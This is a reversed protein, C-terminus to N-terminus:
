IARRETVGIRREVRQWVSEVVMQGLFGLGFEQEEPNRYHEWYGGGNERELDGVAALIEQCVEASYWSLLGLDLDRVGAAYYKRYFLNGAARNVIELTRNEEAYNM